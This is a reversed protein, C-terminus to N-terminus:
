IGMPPPAIDSIDVDKTVGGSFGAVTKHNVKKVSNHASDVFTNVSDIVYQAEAWSM